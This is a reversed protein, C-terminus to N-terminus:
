AWQGATPAAPSRSAREEARPDLLLGLRVLCAGLTARWGNPRHGRLAEARARLREPDLALAAEILKAEVLLEELPNLNM